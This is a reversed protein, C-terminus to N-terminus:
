SNRCRSTHTRFPGGCCASAGFGSGDRPELTIQPAVDHPQGNCESPDCYEHDWADSAYFAERAETQAKGQEAAFKEAITMEFM